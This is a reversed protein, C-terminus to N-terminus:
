IAGRANAETFRVWAARAEHLVAVLDGIGRQPEGLRARERGQAPAVADREDDVVVEIEREGHVGLSQMDATVVAGNRIRPVAEARIPNEANRAIAADLVRQFRRAM